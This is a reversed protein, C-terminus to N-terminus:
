DRCSVGFKTQIFESAAKASAPDCFDVLLTMMIFINRPGKSKNKKGKSPRAPAFVNADGSMELFKNVIEEIPLTYEAIDEETITDSTKDADQLLMRRKYSRVLTGVHPNHEAAAIIKDIAMRTKARQDKAYEENVDILANNQTQCRLFTELFFDRISGTTCGQRAAANLENSHCRLNKTPLVNPDPGEDNDPSVFRPQLLTTSASLAPQAPRQNTLAQHTTVVFSEGSLFGLKLPIICSFLALTFAPLKNNSIRLDNLKDICADSGFVDKAIATLLLKWFLNGVDRYTEGLNLLLLSFLKAAGGDEELSKWNDEDEPLSGYLIQFVGMVHRAGVRTPSSEFLEVVDGASQMEALAVSHVYTMPLVSAAGEQLGDPGVPAVIYAVGTINGVQLEKYGKTQLTAFRPGAVTPQCPVLNEGLELIHLFLCAVEIPITTNTQSIFPAWKKTSKIQNSRCKVQRLFKKTDGLKPLKEWHKLTGNEGTTSFEDISFKVLEGDDGSNINQKLWGKCSKTHAKKLLESLAERAQRFHVMYPHSCSFNCFLM